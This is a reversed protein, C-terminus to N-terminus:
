VLFFLKEQLYRFPDAGNKFCFFLFSQATSFLIFKFWFSPFLFTHFLFPVAQASAYWMIQWVHHLRHSSMFMNLLFHCYVSSSSPQWHKNIIHSKISAPPHITIHLPSQGGRLNLWISWFRITSWLAFPYHGLANQLIYVKWNNFAFVQICVAISPSCYLGLLASYTLTVCIIDM